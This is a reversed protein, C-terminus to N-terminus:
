RRSGDPATSSRRAAERARESTDIRWAKLQELVHRAVLENGLTSYHGWQVSLDDISYRAQERELADMVDIFRYGQAELYTLLPAYRRPKAARSRRQDNLDPFVVIVPLSGRAIVEAYFRDLLRLTLQYAESREDYRGDWTYIPKRTEARAVKLLRVSPSFDLPGDEYLGAFHFDNRGIERLVEAERTRLARYADLTTLPNPLLVLSGDEIKFRPKTFISDRYSRSYFGRYVNVHRALNESMYGILVIDPHYDDGVGLYRLYAQDLGYAPVGYNLVEISPTLSVIRKAWADALPVDSGYTFSDGFAAIRLVGPPATPAYERDDRMGASNIEATGRTPVWGLDPDMDMAVGTGRALFVELKERAEPALKTATPAYEIRALRRMAFLGVFSVSEVALWSAVVFVVPIWPRSPSARGRGDASGDRPGIM